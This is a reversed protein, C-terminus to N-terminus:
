TGAFMNSVPDAQSCADVVIGGIITEVIDQSHPTMSAMNNVHM